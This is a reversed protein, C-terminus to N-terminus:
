KEVIIGYRFNDDVNWECYQPEQTSAPITKKTAKYWTLPSMGGPGNDELATSLVGGQGTSQSTGEATCGSILIMQGTFDKPVARLNFVIPRVDKYIDGSHCTDCIFLVHCKAQSIWSNITTDYIPGDYGYIYETAGTLRAWWARMGRARHRSDQGGHGSVWVILWGDTGLDNTASHLAAKINSLTANTTLLTITQVGHSRWMSSATTADLECDPLNGSWGGYVSPDVSNWGICVSHMPRPTYVATVTNTDDVVTAATTTTACGSTAVAMIIAIVALAVSAWKLETKIWAKM